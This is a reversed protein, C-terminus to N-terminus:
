QVGSLNDWGLIGLAELGSPPVQADGGSEWEFFNQLSHLDFIPPELSQMDPLYPAPLAGNTDSHTEALLNPPISISPSHEAPYQDEPAGDVYAPYPAVAVSSPEIQPDGLGHLSPDIVQLSTTQSPLPSTTQKSRTESEHATPDSPDQPAIYATAQGHAVGERVKNLWDETTVYLPEAIPYMQSMAQLAMNNNQVFEITEDFIAMSEPKTPDVAHAIYYLMIRSSNYVLSPVIADALYKVGHKLVTTVLTSIQRANDYCIFQMHAMLQCQEPPFVFPQRIKFLDPLSVRHLDCLVHHYMCHLLFLSGLQSSARRIYINDPSFDMWPPHSNKWVNIEEHMLAFEGGLVWPPQVGDLHKIYRLVRQWIHIIRLYYASMGMNELPKEPIEDAPVFNLIRGPQLCETVNPIQLLFLRENCPLQLTIDKENLITLRDVGSGAWVDIVYCAWMLRRRSERMSVENSAGTHGKCLIDTSPEKNLQLAHAMRVILGTLLFSGAYNGVRAEYDHLLVLVKLKVISITSYEAFFLNEAVKAWQGGANQTRNCPLPATSESYDLAYFRAGLACMIHLLARDANDTFLGEDMMRMFTPRHVFAFARIPHINDFYADLLSRLRAGSPLDPALLWELSPPFTAPQPQPSSVGGDQRLPSCNSPSAASVNQEIPSAVRPLIRAWVPEVASSADYVCTTHKQDCRSCSPRAGSCRLKGQRCPVCVRYTRKRKNNTSSRPREIQGATITEQICSLSLNECNECGNPRADCKVKRARCTSCANLPRKRPRGRRQVPNESPATEGSSEM